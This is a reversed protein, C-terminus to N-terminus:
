CSKMSEHNLSKLEPKDKGENCWIGWNEHSFQNDSMTLHYTSLPLTPFQHNHLFLYFAKIRQKTGMWYEYWISCKRKIQQLWSYM